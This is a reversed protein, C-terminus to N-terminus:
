KRGAKVMAPTILKGKNGWTNRAYNLVDAIQEDTLFNQSPMEVNYKKGNVTIEGNQGNLIVGIAKKGDKDKVLFDAKALPPFTGELGQGNEQHCTLCSTGYVEQGRKISKALEDNQFSLLGSVVVILALVTLSSKIM